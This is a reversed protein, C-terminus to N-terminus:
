QECDFKDTNESMWFENTDNEDIGLSASYRNILSFSKSKESLYSMIGEPDWGKCLSEKLNTSVSGASDIANVQEYPDNELDFLLDDTDHQHFHIYKWKGSRLMRGPVMIKELDIGPYEEKLAPNRNRVPFFDSLVEREQDEEGEQIEGILSRGDQGHPAEVGTIECLTPVIDMISALSSIRTHPKM